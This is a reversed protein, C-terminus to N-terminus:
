ADPLSSHTAGKQHKISRRSFACRNWLLNPPPLFPLYSSGLLFTSHPSAGGYSNYYTHTKVSYTYSVYKQGM